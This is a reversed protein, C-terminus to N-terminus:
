IFQVRIVFFIGAINYGQELIYLVFKTIDGLVGYVPERAPKIYRGAPKEAYGGKVCLKMECGSPFIYYCCAAAGGTVDLTGFSKYVTEHFFEIEGFAFSCGAVPLECHFLNVADAGAADGGHNNYIVLDM